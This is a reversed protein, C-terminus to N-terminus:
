TLDNNGNKKKSAHKSKQTQYLDLAHEPKMNKHVVACVAQIM